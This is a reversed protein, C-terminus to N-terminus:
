LVEFTAVYVARRRQAQPLAAHEDTVSTELWYMGAAPWTVQFGGDQASILRIEGQQDRYRTGGAVIEIDAGAAPKGDILLRFSAAEGAALDNPHTLLELELGRGSPALVERSPAGVTVFTEVRSQNHTAQVHSAGAPIASAFDAASGRWRRTEGDLEYSAFLGDNVVALRYTGAATLHADFVSRLRGTHANQAAVESGDPASIRLGEIRLPVHNFHFLDNSVAADVTLWAEQGSYVTDSPLLWFKHAQASLPLAAALAIAALRIPTKM